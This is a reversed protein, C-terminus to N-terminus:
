WDMLGRATLRLGESFSVCTILGEIAQPDSMNRNHRGDGNVEATREM